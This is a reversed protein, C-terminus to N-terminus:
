RSGNYIEKLELFIQISQPSLRKWKWINQLPTNISGYAVAPEKVEM